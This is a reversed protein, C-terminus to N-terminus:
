IDQEILQSKVAERVKKDGKKDYRITSRIKDEEMWATRYDSMILHAKEDDVLDM